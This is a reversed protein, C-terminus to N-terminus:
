GHASYNDPSIRLVFFFLKNSFWYLCLWVEASMGIHIDICSMYSTVCLSAWTCCNFFINNFPEQVLQILFSLIFMVSSTYFLQLSCFKVLAFLVCPGYSIGFCVTNTCLKCWLLFQIIGCVITHLFTLDVTNLLSFFVYIYCVTIAPSLSFSLSCLCFSIYFPQRCVWSVLTIFLLKQNYGFNVFLVFLFSIICTSCFSLCPVSLEFFAKGTCMNSESHVAFGLNWSIM